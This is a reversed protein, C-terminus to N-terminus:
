LQNYLGMSLVDKDTYATYKSAANLTQASGYKYFENRTEIWAKPVARYEEYDYCCWSNRDGLAEKRMRYAMVRAAVSLRNDLQFATSARISGDCYRKSRIFGEPNNQDDEREIFPCQAVSGKISDIKAKETKYKDTAQRMWMAIIQFLASNLAYRPYNIPFETENIGCDAILDRQETTLNMAPFWGLLNATPKPEQHNAEPDLRGKDGDNKQEAPRAQQKEDQAAGGDVRVPVFRDPRLAVPLNWVLPGKDISYLYDSQIRQATVGPAPYGEYLYHTRSDVKGFFGTIGGYKKVDPIRLCVFKRKSGSPDEFNGLGSFYTNITEHIPYQDNDVYCLLNREDECARGTINRIAAIRSWLHVTNYYTYMAPSISKGWQRDVAAVQQYTRECLSIFSECSPAIKKEGAEEIFGTDGEIVFIDKSLPDKAEPAVHAQQGGSRGGRNRGHANGGRTGHKVRVEM